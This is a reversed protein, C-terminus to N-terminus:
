IGLRRRLMQLGGGCGKPDEGVDKPTDVVEEPSEIILSEGSKVIESTIKHPVTSEYIHLM